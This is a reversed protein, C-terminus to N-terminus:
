LAPPRWVRVRFRRRRRACSISSRVAPLPCTAARRRGEPCGGAAGYHRFREFYRHHRRDRTLEAAALDLALPREPRRVMARRHRRENAAPQANARALDAERVEAHQEEVLKRFELARDEIRQALRELGSADAHRAGIGMHGERRPDLQDRRHVRAATAMEAIRREGAAARRAAGGIILGLNEPGNRSRM